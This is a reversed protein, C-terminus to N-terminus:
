SLGTKKLVPDPAFYKFFSFNEGVAPERKIIISVIAGGVTLFLVFMMM